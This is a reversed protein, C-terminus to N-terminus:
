NSFFEAHLHGQSKLELENSVEKGLQRLIARSLSPDAEAQLLFRRKNRLDDSLSYDEIASDEDGTILFGQVKCSGNILARIKSLLDSQQETNKLVQSKSAEYNQRQKSLEEIKTATIAKLAESLAETVSM